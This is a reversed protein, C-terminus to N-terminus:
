RGGRRAVAPYGDPDLFKNYGTFQYKDASLDRDLSQM